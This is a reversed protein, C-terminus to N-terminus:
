GNTAGGGYLHCPVLHGPAVERLRPVVRAHIPQTLACRPHFRCGFPPVAMDPPAGPIGTPTQKEGAISPFSWTLGQTYPHRPNAFPERAPAPAVISGGDVIAIRDSLDVPPSPDRTILRIM